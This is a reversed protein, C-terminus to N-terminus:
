ASILFKVHEAQPMEQDRLIGDTNWLELQSDPWTLHRFDTQDRPLLGNTVRAKELAAFSPPHLAVRSGPLKPYLFEGPTGAILAATSSCATVGFPGSLSQMRAACNLPYGLFDVENMENLFTEPQIRIASGMSIGIGYGLPAKYPLDRVFYWFNKHIEFAAGIARKLCQPLDIEHDAEWLLLFGDGLLKHFCSRQDKSIQIVGNYQTKIVDGIQDLSPGFNCWNSFNRIDAFLVVVDSKTGSIESKGSTLTFTANKTYM